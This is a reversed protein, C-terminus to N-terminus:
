AKNLHGLDMTRITQQRDRMLKEFVHMRKLIRPDDCEDRILMMRFLHMLGEPMDTDFSQLENHNMEPFVNRFAPTRASENMILTGLRSFVDNGVSTYFLPVGHVLFLADQEAEARLAEEDLTVKALAASARKADVLACLARTLHGFANRPPIGPPVIAHPLDNERAFQLLLGGSSVVACPYGAALAKKAFDLTEATNGSYSVAVYLAGEPAYRPLGYDRHIRIDREDVLFALADGALASGGMGGVILAPADAVTGRVSTGESWQGMLEDYTM